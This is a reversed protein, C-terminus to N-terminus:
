SQTAVKRGRGSRAAWWLGALIAFPGIYGALVLLGTLTDVFAHAATKLATTLGWRDVPAPATGPENITVTVSSFSTQEKLFNLRGTIQEIEVQIQSLQQQITISDTITTAKEMLSLLVREQSRWHRLRSELDVFEASADATNINIASIKGLKRLKALASEFSSSPIRITITGSVIPSGGSSSNSGSVYGGHARAISIAQDYTQYFQGRKVKITLSGNKIVRDNMPPLPTAGLDISGAGDDAGSPEPQAVGRPGSEKAADQRAPGVPLKGVLNGAALLVAALLAIIVPKSLNLRSLTFM